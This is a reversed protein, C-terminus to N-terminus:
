IDYDSTVYKPDSELKLITIHLCIQVTYLFDIVSITQESVGWIHNYVYVYSVYSYIHDSRRLHLLDYVLM